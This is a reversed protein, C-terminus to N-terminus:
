YSFVPFPADAIRQVTTDVLAQGAVAPRADDLDLGQGPIYTRFM